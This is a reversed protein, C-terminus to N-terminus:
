ENREAFYNQDDIQVINWNVKSEVYYHDPSPFQQMNKGIHYQSIAYETQWKLEDGDYYKSLEEIITNEYEKDGEFNEFRKKDPHPIHFVTHNYNLSESKLGYLHLRSVLEDDEWAYYKGLNENYGGVKNFQERRVYLLGRLYKFYPSNEITKDEINTPGYVFNNEDLNYTDFFKYYPNLIYDTDLKLLFEQTSLSAALNLPQPQNFYQENLVRVIKIRRDLNTLHNLPSSSNWDVIIIEKVQDYNLWSTLSIKLPEYRNKCACIISVNNEIITQHFYTKNVRDYFIKDVFITNIKDHYIEIYGKSKIFSRLDKNTKVIDEYKQFSPHDDVLEVIMMKPKWEDLDFSNFVEKEKGEVDVVLIDFNKPISLDNLLNELRIQNCNTPLFQLNCEKFDIIERCKEPYEDVMTTLSESVYINKIGEEEGIAYNQVTINKNNKHREICKLYYEHVPEIYVGRWGHDALCSTNSVFDGDFAGVEVFIGNSPYGFYKEYIQSLNSVQCDHAINYTKNM